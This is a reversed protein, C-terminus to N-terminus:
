RILNLIGTYQQTSGDVFNTKILYTYADSRAPEGKYSGNWGTRFDNSRYMLEGTKDYVSIKIELINKGYVMWVDNKGDGNPTFSNPIYLDMAKMVNLFMKAETICDEAGYKVVLKYSTSVLPTAFPEACDACSLGISPTWSISKIDHAGTNSAYSFNPTLQITEGLPINMTSPLSVEIKLGNVFEFNSDVNCKNIDRVRLLYRGLKMNQFTNNLSYGQVTDISYQYSLAGATTGGTAIISLIGNTPAACNQLNTKINEIKLKPPQNLSLNGRTTCGDNDTVEITQLGVSATKYIEEVGSMGSWNYQFPPKGGTVLAKLEGDSFGFCSIKKIEELVVKYEPKNKVEYKKEFKCGVKDTFMMTYEGPKLQDSQAIEGQADYWKIASYPPTGGSIFTSIKGDSGNYCTVNKITSLILFSDPEIISILTDWPCQFKDKILITHMGKMLNSNTWTNTSLNTTASSDLRLTFPGNGNLLRLAIHGAQANPCNSHAFSDVLVKLKYQAQLTIYTDRKCSNADEYHLLYIGTELDGRIFTSDHWTNLFKYRFPNVGGISNIVKLQGNKSENCNPNQIDLNLDVRNPSGLSISHDSSICGRFDQVSFTYIGKKLNTFISTSSPTGNKFYSFIGNGGTPLLVIKGISDGFCPNDNVISNISISDPQPMYFSFNQDCSKGYQNTYNYKGSYSGSDMSSLFSDTSSTHDWNYSSPKLSSTVQIHGRGNSYGYCTIPTDISWLAEIGQLDQIIASDYQKCNDKDKVEVVYKRPCLSSISDSTSNNSWYILYPGNSGSITLKARGDCYGSCSPPYPQVNTTFVSGQNLYISDRFPCQSNPTILEAIIWTDRPSSVNLYDLPANSVRSGYSFNVGKKILINIKATSSCSLISDEDFIRYNFEEIEAKAYRTFSSNSSTHCASLLFELNWITDKQSPSYNLFIIFSDISTGIIRQSSTQSSINRSNSNLQYRNIEIAKEIPFAYRLVVPTGQNCITSKVGAIKVEPASTSISHLALQSSIGSSVLLREINSKSIMIMTDKLGDNIKRYESRLLTMWSFLSLTPTLIISDFQFNLSSEAIQLPRADTLSSPNMSGKEISYSLSAGSFTPAIGVIPRSALIGFSDREVDSIDYRIKNLTNTVLSHRFPEEFRTSYNAYSPIFSLYLLIPTNWTALNDSYSRNSGTYYLLCEKNSKQIVITDYYYRREIKNGANTSCSSTDMSCAFPIFKSRQYKFSRGRSLYGSNTYEVSTYSLSNSIETKNCYRDLILEVVFSGTASDLTYYRMEGGTHHDAFLQYSLVLCCSLFAVRLGKYFERM